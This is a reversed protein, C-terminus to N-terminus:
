ILWLSPPVTTQQQNSHPSLRHFKQVQLRSLCDAIVNSQGPIHQMLVNINRKATFLFMHRVLRMLDKNKCSGFRWIHTITLNDTYFLIQQHHWRHGWTMVAAVIAFLERFNIDFDLFEPPWPVSFWESQFTAGFGLFSADTFLTLSYSTQPPSQIIASGNWSPLFDIWWKIDARAEANLYIHHNLSHVTTSLDILRRLFMRGPKVVKCAFSLVGILSLLERKTCKSRSIWLQLSASLEEFKDQPLRITMASSDIEIGLYVISTSPGLVKDPALPVGLESFASQMTVMDQHCRQHTSHCVFFDDLYHIVHEIGFIFVLIWLLANAFQNFIYPSSRSGFPLRTDFFFRNNWMFGLLPWDEPHVPCLRFAHKIDLKAMFSNPGLSSVLEVADDFSSYKVSYQTSSIGENISSGRPSSLDLIIRHSGDKKAVAGLPSCHFGDFPPSLFPGSTHGRELEKLIAKTVPVPQSRASLLNRCQGFTIPGEYGIRFGHRFGQILFNVFDRHPHSVLFNSLIDVHM